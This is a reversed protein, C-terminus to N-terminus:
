FLAKVLNEPETRYTSGKGEFFHHDKILHINLATWTVTVNNSTNTLKTVSKRFQGGHAYPCSLKGRTVETEVDYIDDLTINGAFTSFSADTFYQMRDAIEEPTKQLTQLTNEDAAIIDAISRKDKGIFGNLTIAGPMMRNRIRIDKSTEKM